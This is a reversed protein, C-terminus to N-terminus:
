YALFMYQIRKIWFLLSLDLYWRSLHGSPTIGATLTAGGILTYYVTDHSWTDADCWFCPNCIIMGYQKAKKVETHKHQTDQKRNVLLQEPEKLVLEFNERDVENKRAGNM